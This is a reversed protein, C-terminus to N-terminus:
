RSNDFVRIPEVWEKLKGGETKVGEVNTESQMANTVDETIEGLVKPNEEITTM